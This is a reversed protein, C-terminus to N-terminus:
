ARMNRVAAMRTEHETKAVNTQMTLIQMERQLEIQKLLLENPDASSGGIGGIGGAGHARGLYLEAGKAAVAGAGALFPKWFGGASKEHAAREYGPIRQEPPLAHVPSIPDPSPM